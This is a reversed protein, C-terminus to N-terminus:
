WGAAEATDAATAPDRGNASPALSRAIVDPVPRRTLTIRNAKAHLDREISVDIGARELVDRAMELRRVLQAGQKFPLKLGYDKAVGSVAIFLAQPAAHEITTPGSRVTLGFRNKANPDAELANFLATVATAVPNADDRDRQGGANLRAVQELFQTDIREPVVVEGGKAKSVLEHLYMLALFENSRAKPHDGLEAKLLGMIKQLAGASRARLVRSTHRLLVSLFENRKAALIGLFDAEVIPVRHHEKSCKVAFTRSVIEDLEPAFAEIGNSALMCRPREEIVASDTGGARKEKMGGTTAQLVFDIIEQSTNASELNDLVLFPHRVSQVFCAPPTMTGVRVIGFLLTTLVKDVFTKGEGQPGETRLMPRVLLSPGLIVSLFWQLITEVELKHCPLADGINERLWQLADDGGAEQYEVPAFAVHDANLIAGEDGNTVIRVSDPSILAIENRDNALDLRLTQTAADYEGWGSEERINGRLAALHAIAAFLQRGSKSISVLGTLRMMWGFYRDPACGRATSISWHENEFFLRPEDNRTRFFRGGHEIIWDYVSEAVEGWVVESKSARAQMQAREVIERCSGPEATPVRPGSAATKRSAKASQKARSLESRLTAMPVGTREKIRNLFADQEAKGRTILSYFVGQLLGVQQVHDDAVIPVSAIAIEMAPKAADLIAQFQEPTGGQKFWQAVDIKAKEIWDGVRCGREKDDNIADKLIAARDRSEARELREYTEDGLNERLDRRAGEQEIGLPLMAVRCRVQERDLVRATALAGDLGIGSIENDQVIVVETDSGRLCRVLREADEDKLRVTVPSVTAFGAEQARIADTVGETLVVLKPRGLLVDEGWLVSNDIARSVFTHTSDNWVPLKRYKAQEWQTDATVPCRRGIMYVVRGRSWYPFVIRGEFFPHPHDQADFRFAGTSTIVRADHGRELLASFDGNGGLGIKLREIPERKLGWKKDCWELIDQNGLLRQCQLDAVGTLAAFVAEDARRRTEAAEADEPRAARALPPLGLKKALWDRAARHTETMEGKIGKTVTGSQVFEVLHIVDGGVRCGFCHWLGRSVDVDFSQRSQSQHQPCDIKLRTPTDVTIRDALIERAIQDIPIATIRAYYERPNVPQQSM